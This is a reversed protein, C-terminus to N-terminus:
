GTRDVGQENSGQGGRIMQRYGDVLRRSIMMWMRDFRWTPACRSSLSKKNNLFSGGPEESVESNELDSEDEWDEEGRM